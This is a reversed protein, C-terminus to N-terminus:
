INQALIQKVTQGIEAPNQVVTIGASQLAAM